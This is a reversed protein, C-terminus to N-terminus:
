GPRGIRQQVHLERNSNRLEVGIALEIGLRETAIEGAGLLKAEVARPRLLAREARTRLEPRDLRHGIGGRAGRPHPEAAHDEHGGQV